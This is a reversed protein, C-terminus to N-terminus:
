LIEDTSFLTCFYRSLVCVIAQALRSSPQGTQLSVGRAKGQRKLETGLKTSIRQSNHRPVTIKINKTPKVPAMSSQLHAFHADVHLGIETNERDRCDRKTFQDFRPGESEGM